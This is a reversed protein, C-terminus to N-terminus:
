NFVNSAYDVTAKHAMISAIYSMAFDKAKKDNSCLIHLKKLDEVLTAASKVERINSNFNDIIKDCLRNLLRDDSEIAIVIFDAGNNKSLLCIDNIDLLLSQLEQFKQEDNKGKM